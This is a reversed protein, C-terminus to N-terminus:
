VGRLQVVHIWSTNTSISFFAHRCTFIVSHHDHRAGGFRLMSKLTSSNLGPTRRATPVTLRALDTPSIPCGLHSRFDQERESDTIKRVMQLLGGHVTCCVLWQREQGHLDICCSVSDFGALQDSDRLVVLQKYEVESITLESHYRTAVGTIKVPM